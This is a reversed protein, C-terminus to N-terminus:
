RTRNQKQQSSYKIVSTDYKNGYLIQKMTNHERENNKASLNCTEMRITLYRIEAFKHEQPHCTESPIISDTTTPKRYYQLIKKAKPITIDLFNIKIDKKKEM